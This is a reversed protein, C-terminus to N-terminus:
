QAGRTTMASAANLAASSAAPRYEKIYSQLPFQIWSMGIARAEKLAEQNQWHDHTIRYVAIVTGTRDAGRRCHVFVPGASVDNLIALAQAIQEDSPRHMGKMPVNVYRMGAAEVVEKESGAREDSGRLDVITKIGLRALSRFAEDTVQGGRYVHENVQYFRPIGAVQSGAFASGLPLALAFLL